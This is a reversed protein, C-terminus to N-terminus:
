FELQKLYQFSAHASMLPDKPPSDHEVFVHRAKGAAFIKGFDITGAGVDVMKREPAATADKAHFLAFRGPFRKILDLPDAGGKVVWYIDMEFDVAKPDTGKLLLELGNTGDFPVFEIDHNHYAFRLGSSQAMTGLQNFRDATRKWDDPTTRASNPLSAVTVWSHGIENAQDLTEKWATDDKPLGVHTSPSTLKNAALSARVLSPTRNFYGAFEVERYGIKAIEALTGEFDKSMLSRVTYLQIGIRDLKTESTFLSSLVRPRGSLVGLGAGM